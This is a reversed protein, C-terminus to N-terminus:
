TLSKMQCGDSRRRANLKPLSQNADQVSRKLIDWEKEIKQADPIDDEESNIMNLEQFLVEFKNKVDVLYKNQIEPNSLQAVDIKPEKKSNNNTKKLRFKMKAIVPNHDSHIDAGPYAKCQRISNRYRHRIM